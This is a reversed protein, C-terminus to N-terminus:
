AAALPALTEATGIAQQGPASSVIFIATGGILLVIGLAMEGIRMWNKRDTLWSLVSGLSDAWALPNSGGTGPIPIAPTGPIIQISALLQAATSAVTSDVGGTLDVGMGKAFSQIQSWSLPGGQAQAATGINDGTGSGWNSIGGGGGLLSVAEKANALPDLLAQQSPRDPFGNNSTGSQWLGTFGSSNVEWANGGSEDEAVLAMTSAWAPPGGAAVWLQELAAYSLHWGQGTWTWGPPPSSQNPNQIAATIAAAEPQTEAAIAATDSV